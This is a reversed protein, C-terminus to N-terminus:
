SVTVLPIHLQKYVGQNYHAEKSKRPQHKSASSRNQNLFMKRLGHRVKRSSVFLLFLFLQEIMTGSSVALFTDDSSAETGQLIALLIIGVGITSTLAITIRFNTSINKCSSKSVLFYLTLGVFFVIIEMILFLAFEAISVGRFVSADDFNFQKGFCLLDRKSYFQGTVALDILIALLLCLMPLTLAFIGFKLMLRRKDITDQSQLKYSKYMLYAFQFQIILKLALKVLILYIFMSVLVVCATPNERGDNIFSYIVSIIPIITAVIVVCCMAMVLVGVMTRLEKFVLHLTINAIAVLISIVFIVMLIIFLEKSITDEGGTHCRSGNSPAIFIVTSNITTSIIVHETKNIIDQLESTFNDSIRITNQNVFCYQSENLFITEVSDGKIVTGYNVEGNVFMSLFALVILRSILAVM